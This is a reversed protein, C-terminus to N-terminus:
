HSTKVKSNQKQKKPSQARTAQLKEKQPQARMRQHTRQQSQSLTRHITQHHPKNQKISLGNNMMMSKKKMNAREEDEQDPAQKLEELQKKLENIRRTKEENQQKM